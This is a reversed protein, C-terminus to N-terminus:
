PQKEEPPETRTEIWRRRVYQCIGVLLILAMMLPVGIASTTTNYEKGMMKCALWGLGITPLVLVLFVVLGMLVVTIAPWGFDDMFVWFFRKLHSYFTDTAQHM